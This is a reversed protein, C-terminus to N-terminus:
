GQKLVIILKCLVCCACHCEVVIFIYVDGSQSDVARAESKCVETYIHCAALSM